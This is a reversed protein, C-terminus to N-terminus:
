SGCPETVPNPEASPTARDWGYVDDRFELTGDDDIWATDYVFHLPLTQLLAVMETGGAALAGDIRGETWAPDAALLPKVLAAIDPLAVCGLTDHRDPQEFAAEGAAGAPVGHLAIRDNGAIRLKALGLPNGAGPAQRLGDDTVRIGHNVFYLADEEQRPWLQRDAVSQPIRYAPRLEIRDVLGDLIPTPTAAAGLRAPGEAVSRGGIVLRYRAAPINVTLYRDGWNRGASRELNRKLSAAREKAPVNLAALTGAGLVGDPPLGHRAQFHELATKLAADFVAGVAAGELDGSARLRRRLAEVRPGSDGLQLKPGDALKPWDNLKALAAKIRAQEPSEPPSAAAPPAPPPTEAAPTEVKPTEAKPAEPAPKPPAPPTEVKPPEPEQVLAAVDGAASLQDLAAAFGAPADQPRLARATAGYLATLLLDAGARSDAPAAAQARAADLLPQLRNGITLDSKALRALLAHAAPAEATTFWIPRNGRASYVARLAAVADAGLAADIDILPPAGVALIEGIAKAEPSSDQAAAPGAMPLGACALLLFAVRIMRM